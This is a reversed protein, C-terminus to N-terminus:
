LLPAATHRYMNRLEPEFLGASHFPKLLQAIQSIARSDIPACPSEGSHQTLLTRAKSVATRFATDDACLFGASFEDPKENRRREYVTAGAFYLMTAAVFLDFRRRTAYCASVIEDIFCLEDRITREYASVADLQPMRDGGCEFLKALREIGCLTHAIGTSHLPDIFGATSPLLAFGPGGARGVLRNLRRSRVIGQPPGVAVTERFQRDISPFRKLWFAFEGAPSLGEIAPNERADLAFGVSVVDNVFRLQWMWGADFVHHLAADDCRFPYDDIRAGQAEAISQWRHVDSFHGFVARSATHLKRTDDGLGLSRALFGGDGSADILFEAKFDIQQQSRRGVLEWPSSRGLLQLACDDLCFVSTARAQEYFYADVESRMWHTDAHEDDASAAVLLETTHTEDSRFPQNKEHYFYSFGRKLGGTIHPLARQWTGFKCLPTLSDLRYRRCLDYLIRNGIPTLSEGIAFRPHSGRDVLVVDRGLKRLICAILSGAFGAGVICVDFHQKV